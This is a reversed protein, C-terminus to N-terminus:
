QVQLSVNHVNGVILKITTTYNQIVMLGAKRMMHKANPHSLM